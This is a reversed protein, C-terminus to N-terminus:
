PGIRKVKNGRSELAVGRLLLEKDLKWFEEGNMRLDKQLKIDIQSLENAEDVALIIREKCEGTKVALKAVRRFTLLQGTFPTVEGEMLTVVCNKPDKQHCQKEGAYATASLTTALLVSWINQLPWQTM